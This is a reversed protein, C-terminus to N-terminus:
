FRFQLMRPAAKARGHSQVLATHGHPRVAPPMTPRTEMRMAAHKNPLHYGHTRPAKVPDLELHFANVVPTVLTEFIDRTEQAPLDDHLIKQLFSQLTDREYESIECFRHDRLFLEMAPSMDPRGSVCKQSPNFRYGPQLGTSRMGFLQMFWDDDFAINLIRNLSDQITRQYKAETDPDRFGLGLAISAVAYFTSCFISSLNQELNGMFLRKPLSGHHEGKPLFATRIFSM